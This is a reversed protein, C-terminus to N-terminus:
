ASVLVGPLLQARIAGLATDRGVNIRRLRHPDHQLPHNIGRRTTFALEIGVERVAATIGHDVSGGPYALVPPIEPGIHDQLDRLSGLVERRVEDLSVRELLPHTQTHPALTVGQSHLARLEPWTLVANEDLAGCASQSCLDDVLAVAEVHPLSKVHRKLRKFLRRREPGGDARVQGWPTDFQRRQRDVVVARHLRDWWFRRRRDAPFATPVFLTVPLGLGQL